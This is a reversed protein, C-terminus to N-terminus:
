KSLFKVIKSSLKPQGISDEKKAVVLHQFWIMPNRKQIVNRTHKSWM